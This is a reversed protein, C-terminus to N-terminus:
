QGYLQTVGVAAPALAAGSFVDLEGAKRKRARTEGARRAAESDRPDVMAAEAKRIADENAKRAREAEDLAQQQLAEARAEAAGTGPATFVRSFFKEIDCM